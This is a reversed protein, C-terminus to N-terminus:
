GQDLIISVRQMDTVNNPWFGPTEPDAPNTKYLIDRVHQYHVHSMEAHIDDDEGGHEYTGVITSGAPAVDDELQITAVYTTPNFAVQFAAM